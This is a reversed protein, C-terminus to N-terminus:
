SARAPVTRAGLTAHEVQAQALSVVGAIQKAYWDPQDRALNAIAQGAPFLDPKRWDEEPENRETIELLYAHM